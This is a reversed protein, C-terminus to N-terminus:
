YTIHMVDEKDHNVVSFAVYGGAACAVAAAAVALWLNPGGGQPDFGGASNRFQVFLYFQWVAVLACIASLATLGMRLTNGPHSM